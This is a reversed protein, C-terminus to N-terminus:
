RKGESLYFKAKSLYYGQANYLLVTVSQHTLPIEGQYLGKARLSNILDSHALQRAMSLVPEVWLERHYKNEIPERRPERHLRPRRSLKGGRVQYSM